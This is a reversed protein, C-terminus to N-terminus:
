EWTKEDIPELDGSTHFYAGMKALPDKEPRSKKSERSVKSERKETEIRDKQDVAITDPEAPGYVTKETDQEAFVGTRLLEARFIEEARAASPRSGPEKLLLGEILQRIEGSVAPDALLEGSDLVVEYPYLYKQTDYVPLNGTLYQHLLLGAAFLDTGTGPHPGDGMIFLFAEPSLYLQDGGLDDRAEPNEDSLFSSGYDILKPVVTGSKTRHLLVNTEKIDAHIVGAKHLRALSHMLLACVTLKASSTERQLEDYTIQDRVYESVEYFHAEHRFLENVRIISGDSADNVRRLLEIRRKVFANCIQIGDRRLDEALSYDTPYVPNILEKLFYDKGGKRGTTWRSFGANSNQFPANLAYGQFLEM